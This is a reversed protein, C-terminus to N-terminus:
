KEKTDLLKGVFGLKEQVAKTRESITRGEGGMMDKMASDLEGGAGDAVTAPDVGLARTANGIQNNRASVRELQKDFNEKTNALTKVDRLSEKFLPVITAVKAQASPSVAFWGGAAAVMALLSFTVVLSQRKQTIKMKEDREDIMARLEPCGDDKFARAEPELGAETVPMTAVPAVPEAKVVTEVPAATPIARLKEPAAMFTAPKPVGAPPPASRLAAMALEHIKEQTTM